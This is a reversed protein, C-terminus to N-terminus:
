YQPYREYTPKGRPSREGTSWLLVTCSVTALACWSLLPLVERLYEPPVSLVVGAAYGLTLALSLWLGLRSGKATLLVALVGTGALLIAASNSSGLRAQVQWWSSLAVCSVILFRFFFQM